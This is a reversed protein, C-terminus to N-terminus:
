RHNGKLLTHVLLAAAAHLALAAIQPQWLSPVHKRSAYMRVSTYTAWAVRTSKLM